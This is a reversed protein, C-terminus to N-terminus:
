ERLAQALAPLIDWRRPFRLLSVPVACALERLGDLQAQTILCFLPPPYWAELLHRFALEPSLPGTNELVDGEGPPALIYVADLHVSNEGDPHHPSAVDWQHKGVYPALALSTENGVIQTKASDLLRVITCGPEVFYGAGDRRLVTMDDSHLTAGQSVLWASTTSKGAGSHGLLAFTRDEWSLVAGHLCIRGRRQLLIGMVMGVLVTPAFELKAMRCIVTIRGNNASIVFWLEGPWIICLDGAPTEGIQPRNSDPSPHTVRCDMLAWATEPQWGIELDPRGHPSEIPRAGPLAFPSVISLGFLRSHYATMAM